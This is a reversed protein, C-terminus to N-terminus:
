DYMRLIERLCWPYIEWYRQSQSQLANLAKESCCGKSWWILQLQMPTCMFFWLDHQYETWKANHWAFLFVNQQLQFVNKCANVDFASSYRPLCKAWKLMCQRRSRRRGWSWRGSHKVWQGSFVKDFTQWCSCSLMAYISASVQKLAWSQSRCCPGAWCLCVRENWSLFCRSPVTSEGECPILPKLFAPDPLISM